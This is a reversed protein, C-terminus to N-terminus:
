RLKKELRRIKVALIVCAILLLLPIGIELFAALPSLPASATIIETPGDTGGIIGADTTTFISWMTGNNAFVWAMINLSIVPVLWLLCLACVATLCWRVLRPYRINNM